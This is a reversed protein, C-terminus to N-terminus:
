PSDIRTGDSETEAPPRDWFFMENGDLDKIVLTSRGWERRETQIQKGAIHKHLPEIQDGELGIFVRGQGARFPEQLEVQNLIVEFGMLSVQCVYVRGDEQQSWDETFGLQEVYFRLAAETNEVFFVARAYLNSMSM